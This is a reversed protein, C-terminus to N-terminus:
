PRARVFPDAFRPDRVLKWDTLTRLFAVLDTRDQPGLQLGIHTDVISQGPHAYFQVVQELTAFRGDHMYPATLEVNRLSAARFKGRDQPRGTVGMRGPDGREGTDLGNNRCEDSELWAPEFHWASACCGVTVRRVHCAACSQRGFFLRKGRRPVPGQAALVCALALPGPLFSLARAIPM